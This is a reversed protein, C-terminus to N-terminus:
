FHCGTGLYATQTGNTLDVFGIIDGHNNIGNVLTYTGTANPIQVTYYNGGRYVFGTFPVGFDALYDGAIENKDNIGNFFLEGTNPPGYVLTVKGDQYIFGYPNFSIWLGVIVGEDNIATPQTDLSSSIRFDTFKGGSLIYGGTFGEDSAYSGVITGLNNIGYAWTRQSNPHVINLPAGGASEVFGAGSSNSETTKAWWGVIAGLDNISSLSTLAEGPVSYTSVHGDPLYVFGLEQDFGIYSGVLVDQDNLANPAQSDDPYATNAPIFQFNSCTYTGSQAHSALSFAAVMLITAYLHTKCM